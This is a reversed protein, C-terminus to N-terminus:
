VMLMEERRDSRPGPPFAKQPEAAPADPEMLASLQRRNERLSAMIVQPPPIRAPPIAAMIEPARHAGLNLLLLFLWAAGLGAAHWRLSRLWERWSMPAGDPERTEVTALAARRVAALKREAGRHRELLLERPTKM